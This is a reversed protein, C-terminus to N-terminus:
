STPLHTAAPAPPDNKGLCSLRGSARETPAGAPEPDLIKDPETGADTTSQAGSGCNLAVLALTVQGIRALMRKM